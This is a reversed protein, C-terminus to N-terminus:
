QNEKKPNSLCCLGYVVWTPLPFLFGFFAWLGKDWERREAARYFARPIFYFRIVVLVIIFLTSFVTEM